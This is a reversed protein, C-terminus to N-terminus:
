FLTYITNPTNSPLKGSKVNDTVIAGIADSNITAALPNTLRIHQAASSTAAGVGYESMITNWYESAGIADAFKEYTDANADGPWTVTVILPATLVGGQNNLVAPMDPKFAPYTTSPAGHDTCPQLPDGSQDGTGLGSPTPPTTASQTRATSPTGAGSSCGAATGALTLLASLALAFSRQVSPPKLPALASAHPHSSLTTM